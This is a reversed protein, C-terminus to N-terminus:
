LNNTLIIYKETGPLDDKLMFVSYSQHTFEKNVKYFCPRLENTVKCYIIHNDIRIVYWVFFTYPENRKNKFDM